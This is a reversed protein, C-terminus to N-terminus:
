IQAYLLIHVFKVLFLFLICFICNLGEQLTDNRFSFNSKKLVGYFVTGLQTIKGKEKGSLSVYGDNIIQIDDLSIDGTM